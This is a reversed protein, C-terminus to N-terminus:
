NKEKLQKLMFENHKKINNQKAEARAYQKQMYTKPLADRRAKRKKLETLTDKSQNIIM